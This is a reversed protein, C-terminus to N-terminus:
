GNNQTINSTNDVKILEDESLGRAGEVILSEGGKLGESIIVEGEYSEGTEIYVKQAYAGEAGDSHVYVFNKGGVEQQVTELPVVVANKKEYDVLYMNALLNPKLLKRKNNLEVEVAFTRNEPNITSGVLSVRGQYEEELAPVVIRVRDGRGVVKLYVEPVNAVVKVKSTNLIQVIPAGPAALEGAKLFVRDVVGGIPAYVKAK